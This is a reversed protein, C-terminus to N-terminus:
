LEMSVQGYLNDDKKKVGPLVDNDYQYLYGTKLSLNKGMSIKLYADHTTRFTHPDFMRPIHFWTYHILVWKVPMINVRARFSWREGTKLDNERYKEMQYLPAGSLDAKWFGNRFLVLKIGGGDNYRYTLGTVRNYESQSFIFIEMRPFIFYDFRVSGTGKNEVTDEKVRAYFTRYTIEFNAINDDYVLATEGNANVSRTNGTKRTYM